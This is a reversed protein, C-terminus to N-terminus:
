TKIENKEESAQLYFGFASFVFISVVVIGILIQNNKKLSTNEQLLKASDLDFPIIQIDRTDIM